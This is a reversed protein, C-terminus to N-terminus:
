FEDLFRMRHCSGIVRVFLALFLKGFLALFFVLEFSLGVALRIIGVALDVVVGAFASAIM